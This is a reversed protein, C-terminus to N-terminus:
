YVAENKPNLRASNILALVKECAFTKLSASRSFTPFILM